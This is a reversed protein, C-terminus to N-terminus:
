QVRSGRDALRTRVKPKLRFGDSLPALQHEIREKAAGAETQRTRDARVKVKGGGRRAPKVKAKASTIGDSREALARAIHALARRRAALGEDGPAVSVLRERAPVFVGLLLALALAILGLGILLALLDVPGSDELDGLSGDVSDRLDPLRLADALAPLSLGSDGGQICFVALALGAAALIVLLLFGLLSVLARLLIVFGM